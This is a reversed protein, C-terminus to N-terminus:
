VMGGAIWLAIAWAIAASCMAAAGVMLRGATEPCPQRRKTAAAVAALCFVVGGGLLMYFLDRPGAELGRVQSLGQLILVAPVVSAALAVVNLGMMMARM